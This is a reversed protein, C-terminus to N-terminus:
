EGRPDAELPTPQGLLACLDNFHSQAAARETTTVNRWRAVIEQPSLASPM